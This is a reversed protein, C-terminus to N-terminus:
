IQGFFYRKGRAQAFGSNLATQNVTVPGTISPFTARIAAKINRLHNDGESKPDSPLPLSSDLDSIYTVTEVTM